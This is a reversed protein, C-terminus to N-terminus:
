LQVVEPMYAAREAELWTLAEARIKFFRLNRIVRSPLSKLFMMFINSIFGDEIVIAIRVELENIRNETAQAVKAAMYPTPWAGSVEYLSTLMDGNQAAVEHNHQTIEFWRDVADRRMDSIQFFQICNNIMEYRLNNDDFPPAYHLDTM